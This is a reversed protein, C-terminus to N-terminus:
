ASPQVLRKGVDTEITGFAAEHSDISSKLAFWLRKATYANLVIRSPAVLAFDFGSSEDSKLAFDIVIDDATGTVRCLNAYTLQAKAVSFQATEFWSRQAPPQPAPTPNSM